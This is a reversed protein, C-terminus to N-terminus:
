PVVFYEVACGRTFSACMHCHTGSMHAQKYSQAHLCVNMDKFTRLKLTRMYPVSQLICRHFIYWAVMIIKSSTPGRLKTDM